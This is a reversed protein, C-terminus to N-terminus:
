RRVALDARHARQVTLSPNLVQARNELCPTAFGGLLAADSSVVRKCCRPTSTPRGPVPVAGGSEVSIAVMVDGGSCSM